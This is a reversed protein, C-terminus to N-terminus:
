WPQPEQTVKTCRGQMFIEVIQVQEIADAHRVKHLVNPLMTMCIDTVACTRDVRLETFDPSM